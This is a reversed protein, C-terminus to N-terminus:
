IIRFYAAKEGYEGGDVVGEKMRAPVVTPGIHACSISPVANTEAGTEGGSEQIRRLMMLVASGRVRCVLDGPRTVRSGMGVLGSTTRYAVRCMSPWTMCDIWRGGTTGAARRRLEAQAEAPLSDLLSRVPVPYEDDDNDDDIGSAESARRWLEYYELVYAAFSSGHEEVAQKPGVKNESQEEVKTGLSLAMSLTELTALADRDTSDEAPFVVEWVRDLWFPNKKARERTLNTVPFDTTEMRRSVASIEDVVWGQALLHPLPTGKAGETEGYIRIEANEADAANVPYHLPTTRNISHWDPVWSPMRGEDEPDWDRAEVSPDEEHDVLAVVYLNNTKRILNVALNTYIVGRTVTYDPKIVLEGDVVALPHGLLSYVRDRADTVGLIRTWHMGTLFDCDPTGDERMEWVMLIHHAVWTRLDLHTVLSAGSYDLFRVFRGVLPWDVLDLELAQGESEAGDAPELAACMIADRALGLEQVIWTRHFYEIEFFVKIAEWNRAQEEFLRQDDESLLALRAAPAAVDDHHLLIRADRLGAEPDEMFSHMFRIALQMHRRGVEGAEWGLWALVRRAGAFIRGMLEIQSTREPLNEQNICVADAWLRRVRRQALETGTDPYSGDSSGSLPRLRFATLAGHLNATVSLTAGDIVIDHRERRDGWVYSVAEYPEGDITQSVLRGVIPDSFEGADLEFVRILEPPLPRYCEPYCPPGPADM